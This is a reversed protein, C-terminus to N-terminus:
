AMLNSPNRGLDVLLRKDVFVSPLKKEYNYRPSIQMAHDNPSDKAKKALEGYSTEFVLFMEEIKERNPLSISIRTEQSKYSYNSYSLRFEANFHYYSFNASLIENKGYESIFQVESDLSWKSDPYEIEWRPSLLKRDKAPISKLFLKYAKDLVDYPFKIQQYTKTKEAM